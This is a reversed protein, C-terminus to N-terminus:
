GTIGAVLNVDVPHGMISARWDVLEQYQPSAYWGRAAQETPFRVIATKTYDARGELREPAAFALLEGDFPELTAGVNALYHGLDSDPTNDTRVFVVYHMDQGKVKLKFM